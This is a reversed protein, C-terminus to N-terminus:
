FYLSCDVGEFPGHGAMTHMRGSPSLGTLLIPGSWTEVGPAEEESVFVLFKNFSVEGSVRGEEGLAGLRVVRDLEPTAAWVVYAAGPRRRIRTVEVSVHLVYRGDSSVTVGYPSDSMRLWMRGEAGTGHATPRLPVEEPTRAARPLPCAAGADFAHLPPPASPAGTFGEAGATAGAATAVGVGGGAAVLALTAVRAAAAGLGSGRSSHRSM